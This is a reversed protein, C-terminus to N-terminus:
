LLNSLRDPPYDRRHLLALAPFHCPLGRGSTSVLRPEVLKEFAEINEQFERTLFKGSETYLREVYSALTLLTSLLLIAVYIFLITM